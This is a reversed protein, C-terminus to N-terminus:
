KDAAEQLDGVTKALEDWDKSLAELSDRFDLLRQVLGDVAHNLDQMADIFDNMAVLHQKGGTEDSM